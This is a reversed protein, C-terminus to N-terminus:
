NDPTDISFLINEKWISFYELRCDLHSSIDKGLGKIIRIGQADLADLFTKFQTLESYVMGSYASYASYWTMLDDLLEGSIPYDIFDYKEYENTILDHIVLGFTESFPDAILVVRKLKCSNVVNM